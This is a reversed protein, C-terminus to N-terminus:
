FHCSVVPALAKRGQHDGANTLTSQGQRAQLLLCAFAIVRALLETIAGINNAKVASAFQMLM